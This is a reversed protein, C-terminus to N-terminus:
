QASSLFKIKDAIMRLQDDARGIIKPLAATLEDEVKGRHLLSGILGEVVAQTELVRPDFM